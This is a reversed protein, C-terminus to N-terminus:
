RTEEREHARATRLTIIAIGVLMALGGIAMRPTIPTQFIWVAFVIALLPAALTLPSITSVPYRQLLWTMGGHGLISSGVASFAIWGLAQWPRMTAVRALEGPEVMLSAALLTPASILGLWAYVTLAPIGQLRRFLLSGIAWLACAVVALLLGWREDFLAPDFGMVVVGVFSLAIGALRPWHIREGLFLVALILSFPVGLQGAISLASINDAVAFSLSVAGFYLAGAIMATLLMMAMRGPLWRLWPALLVAVLLFRIFAATLPMVAEVAYKTAIANLGWVLDILLVLALHQPKM